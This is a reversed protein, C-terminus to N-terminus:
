EDIYFQRQFSVTLTSTETEPTAEVTFILTEANVVQTEAIYYIAEGERQERVDLRRLQGTLNTASASVEAAVATALGIEQNRLVSINLLVRNKSRIIGYESAIRAELRDTTLANFHLVYDGFDQFSETASLVAPNQNNPGANPNSQGCGASILALGAILSLWSGKAMWISTQNMRGIYVM